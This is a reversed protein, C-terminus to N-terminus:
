LNCCTELALELVADRTDYMEKWNRYNWHKGGVDDGAYLLEGFELGRFQSVALFGACEMEVVHCGEQKRKDIKNRTERYIADTTWTKVLEFEVNNRKLVQVIKEVTNVNTSINRSPKIYHYSTGEDRLAEIPILVKGRLINSTLVGCGGCAIFKKCGLVNLKEIMGVAYASGGLTHLLAVNKGSSYNEIIYVPVEWSEFVINGIKEVKRDDVYRKVADGFFSLVCYEPLSYKEKLNMKPEILATPDPDFEIIPCEDYM